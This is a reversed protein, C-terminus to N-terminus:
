QLEGREARWFRMFCSHRQPFPELLRAAKIEGEEGEVGRSAEFQLCSAPVRRPSSEETQRCTLPFRTRHPPLFSLARSGLLLPSGPPPPLPPNTSFLALLPSLFQSCVHTQWSVTHIQGRRDLIAVEFHPSPIHTPRRARDVPGDVDHLFAPPLGSTTKM